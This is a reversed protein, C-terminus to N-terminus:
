VLGTLGYEVLILTIRQISVLFSKIIILNEKLNRGKGSSITEKLVWGELENKSESEGM